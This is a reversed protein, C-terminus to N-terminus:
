SRYNTITDYYNDDDDDDDDYNDTFYVDYGLVDDLLRNVYRRYLEKTTVRIYAKIERRFEEAVFVGRTRSRRVARLGIDVLVSRLKPHELVLSTIEHGLGFQYPLGEYAFAGLWTAPDLRLLLAKPVGSCSVCMKSSMLRGESTLVTGIGTIERRLEILEHLMRERKTVVLLSDYRDVLNTDELHEAILLTLELPFNCVQNFAEHLEYLAKSSYSWYYHTFLEDYLFPVRNM